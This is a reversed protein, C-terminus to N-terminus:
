PVPAPRIKAAPCHEARQRAQELQEILMEVDREAFMVQERSAIDNQQLNIVSKLDEQHHGLNVEVVAVDLARVECDAALYRRHAEKIALTRQQAKDEESVGACGLRFQRVVAQQRELRWRARELSVAAVDRHHKAELYTLREVMDNKWLGNQLVFIEEALALRTEDLQIALALEDLESEREFLLLPCLEYLSDQALSTFPALLAFSM